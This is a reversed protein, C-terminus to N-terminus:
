DQKEELSKFFLGNIIRATKAKNDLDYGGALREPSPPPHRHPQRFILAMPKAEDCLSPRLIFSLQRLLNMIRTTPMSPGVSAEPAACTGGDAGTVTTLVGEFGTGTVPDVVTEPETDIEPV